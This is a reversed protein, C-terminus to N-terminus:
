EEAAALTELRHDDAASQLDAQVAVITNQMEGFSKELIELRSESRTTAM